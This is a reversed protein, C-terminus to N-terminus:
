LCCSLRLQEQESEWACTRVSVAVNSHKQQLELVTRHCAAYEELLGGREEYPSNEVARLDAKADLGAANGRLLNFTRTM